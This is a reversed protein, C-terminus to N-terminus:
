SHGHGNEMAGENTEAAFNGVFIRHLGRLQGHKM